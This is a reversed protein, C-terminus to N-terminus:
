LKVYIVNGDEGRFPLCTNDKLLSGDANQCEPNIKPDKKVEEVSQGEVELAKVRDKLNVLAIAHVGIIILLLSLVLIPNKIM